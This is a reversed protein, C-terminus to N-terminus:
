RLSILILFMALNLVLIDGRAVAIDAVDTSSNVNGSESTFSLEDSCATFSLACLFLYIIKKM